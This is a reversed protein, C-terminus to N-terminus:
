RRVLQRRPDVRDQRWVGLRLRAGLIGGLLGGVDLVAEAEQGREQEDEGPDRDEDAGEQDEVRERDGDGLPGTLEAHQPREARRRALDERRDEGLRHHEAYEGRDEPDHGAESEDGEDGGSNLAIPKSSGCDPITIVGAEIMTGIITPMTAVSPEDITGASRAVRTVGSSASRSPAPVGLRASGAGCRSRGRAPGADPDDSEGAAQERGRREAGRQRQQAESQDQQEDADRHQGARQDGRQGGEDALRDLPQAAHGASEGALVRQAVRAPGGRGRRRQHDPDRQDDERRDEGGRRRLGDAVREVLGERAVQRDGVGVAERRDRGVDGALDAFTSPTSVTEGIEPAGASTSSEVGVLCASIVPRSGAVSVFTAFSSQTSPESSVSVPRSGSSAITSDFHASSLPTETPSSMCGSSRSRPRPSPGCRRCRERGHGAAPRSADGQRDGRQAVAEVRALVEGVQDPERGPASAPPSGRGSRCAARPATGAPELRAILLLELLLLLVPDVLQERQDVDQERQRHDDAEEADDVREHQRDVLAGALDAHQARDACRLRLDAPHDAVLRQDRRHDARDDAGHDPQEDRDRRDLRELVVAEHEPDRDDADDEDQDDDPMAPTNAPIQGARRAEFISTM